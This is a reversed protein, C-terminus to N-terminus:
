LQYHQCGQCSQCTRSQMEKATKDKNVKDFASTFLAVTHMQRVDLSEAADTQRPLTLRWPPTWASTAAHPRTCTRARACPTVSFNCPLPVVAQFYFAAIHCEVTSHRTFKECTTLVLVSGEEVWSEANRAQSFTHASGCIMIFCQMYHTYCHKCLPSSEPPVILDLSLSRHSRFM